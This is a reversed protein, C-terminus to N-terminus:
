PTLHTGTERQVARLLNKADTIVARKGGAELYSLLARMKPAMTGEAFHVGEALCRRAEALTLHDIWKQERQGYHFAAKEVGTLSIFLDAKLARAILACTADVDMQAPAGTFKGPQSEYVPVGGGGAGIVVTGSQILAQITDIELVRVAEPASVLRRWGKGPEEQLIWQEEQIRNEAEAKTLYGGLPISPNELAPDSKDVLTQTILTIVNKQLGQEALLNLLNQQLWYGMAGQTDAYLTDLPIEHLGFVDHAIESRALLFSLQPKNSYGMFVDWGAAVLQVIQTCVDGAALYQDEINRKSPNKIFAHSGIAIVAVQRTSM